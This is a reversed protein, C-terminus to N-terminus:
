FNQKDELAARIESIKAQYESRLILRDRLNEIQLEGLAIKFKAQAARDLNKIEREYSGRLKKVEALIERSEGYRILSFSFRMSFYVLLFNLAASQLSYALIGSAGALIIWHWQIEFELTRRAAANYVSFGSAAIFIAVSVKFSGDFFILLAATVAVIIAETSEYQWDTM